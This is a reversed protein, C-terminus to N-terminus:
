LYSVTLLALLSFLLSVSKHSLIPLAFLALGLLPSPFLIM